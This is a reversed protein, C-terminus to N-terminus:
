IREVVGLQESFILGAINQGARGLLCCLDDRLGMNSANIDDSNARDRAVPEFYGIARAYRQAFEAVGM